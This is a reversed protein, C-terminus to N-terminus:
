RGAILRGIRRAEIGVQRLMGGAVVKFGSFYLGKVGTVGGCVMPTGDADLVVDVGKLIDGVAARYGTGLVVAEFAAERGDSFVVGAETFRAIGPYVEM